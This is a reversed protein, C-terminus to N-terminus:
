CEHCTIHSPLSSCLESRTSYSDILGPKAVIRERERGLENPMTRIMEGRAAPKRVYLLVRGGLGGCCSTDKVVTSYKLNYIQSTELEFSIQKGRVEKQMGARSVEKKLQHNGFKTM